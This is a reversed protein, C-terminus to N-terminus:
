VVSTARLVRQRLAARGPGFGTGNLKMSGFSSSQTIEIRGLKGGSALRLRRGAVAQGDWWGFDINGVFWGSRGFGVLFLEM